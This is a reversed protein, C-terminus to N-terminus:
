RPDFDYSGIARYSKTNKEVWYQYSDTAAELCEELTDEGFDTRTFSDIEHYYKGDSGIWITVKAPDDGTFIGPNPLRHKASYSLSFGPLLIAITSLM